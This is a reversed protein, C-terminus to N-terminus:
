LLFGSLKFLLLGVVAGAILLVPWAVPLKWAPVMGKATMDEAMDVVSKQMSIWESIGLDRAAKATSVAPRKRFTAKTIPVPCGMIPGFLMLGYYDPLLPPLWRSRYKPGARRLIRAADPLLYWGRQQNVLLYRGKASEKVLALCHALAVDRVDVVATGLPPAWPWLAGSLLDIMQSVSEGDARSGAPRPNPSPSPHATPFPARANPCGGRDRSVHVYVCAVGVRMRLVGVGLCAGGAGGGVVPEGIPPGWVVGPNLTVLGWRGGAEAEMEYARKEAMMKSYFYPYNRPHAIKNWDEETFVHDKGRERPDGWVAVISSTVLVRKVTPTRNVSGLVNETGRIAPGILLEEEKGAPCDLLYPSATHMVAACGAMAEDFAGDTLLDAKFLKLREAAGPLSTLHAVSAANSPNRATAHVQPRPAPAPSPAPTPVRARSPPTSKSLARAAPRPGQETASRTRPQPGAARQRRARISDCNQKSHAARRRTHLQRAGAVILALAQTGSWSKAAASSSCAGAAAAQARAGGRPPAPDRSRGASRAAAGRGGPLGGPGPWGGVTHGAALLRHVIHGAVYGTAGTVCVTQPKVAKEEPRLPIDLDM